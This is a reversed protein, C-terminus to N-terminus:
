ANSIWISVHYTRSVHCREVPQLYYVNSVLMNQQLLQQTM